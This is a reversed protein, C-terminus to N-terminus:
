RLSVKAFRHLRPAIVDDSGDAGTMLWCSLDTQHTKCEQIKTATQVLMQEGIQALPGDCM